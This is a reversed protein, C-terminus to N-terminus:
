GACSWAADDDSSPASVSLRLARYRCPPWERAHALERFPTGALPRPTELRHTVDPLRPMAIIPGM